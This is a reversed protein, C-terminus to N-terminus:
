FRRDSGVRVLDHITLTLAMYPQLYGTKLYLDAQLLIKIALELEESTFRQVQNMYLKKFYPRLNLTRSVEDRSLGGDIMARIRMLLFIRRSLEVIIGVASQGGDLLRKLVSLADKLDRRGVADTLEWTNFKRSFGVVSAVEEMGLNKKGWSFTFLKEIENYLSWLSNGVQQVLLTAGDHSITVKKEHLQKKVWEVAQNEYLTKCDVWRSHKTLSGYFSQRLDVKGAILVLCTSELPSQVYELVRKKDSPSLKQVSKLVVVRRDTMMPFSSALGVVTEGDAQEGWLIDCNFDRTEPETGKEGFLFYVSALKGANVEQWLSQYDL